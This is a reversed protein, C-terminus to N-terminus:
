RQGTYNMRKQIFLICAPRYMNKVDIFATELKLVVKCTAEPPARVQALM